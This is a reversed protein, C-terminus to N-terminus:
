CVIGEANQCREAMMEAMSIAEMISSYSVKGTGARELATGHDVSTRIFPLGLTVNVADGFSLTKIPILAQDHYCCVVADYQNRVQPSFLTDAPLPGDIRIGSEKVHKVAPALIDIEERGFHGQEGAHPNLGCLALRPSEIGFRRKLDHHTIEIDKVMDARNLAAPVDKLAMHTTLLAVRLQNSALMMVVRETDAIAALFETHGPFDFGSDRLIAKEIPATVIAAAEGRLCARAASEICGIVAAATASSPKGVTVAGASLEPSLPNWVALMGEPTRESLEKCCHIHPTIGLQAARGTLWHEPSVVVVNRFLEPRAQFALLICDPGIGAPEGPTLLLPLV